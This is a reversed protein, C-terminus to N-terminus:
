VDTFSRSPDSVTGYRGDIDVVAAFNMSESDSSCADVHQKGFFIDHPGTIQVIVFCKGKDDFSLDLQPQQFFFPGDLCNILRTTEKLYTKNTQTQKRMISCLRSIRGQTNFPTTQRETFSRCNSQVDVREELKMKNQCM